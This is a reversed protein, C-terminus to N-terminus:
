LHQWYIVQKNSGEHVQSSHEMPTTSNDMLADIFDGAPM